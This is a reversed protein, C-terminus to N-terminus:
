YPTGPCSSACRKNIFGGEKQRDGDSTAKESGALDILNLRSLRVVSSTSRASSRAAAAAALSATSASTSLGLSQSSPLSPSTTSDAILRSEIIQHLLSAATLATTRPLAVPAFALLSPLAVSSRFSPTRGRRTSTSTPRASAGTTRARRSSCSSRRPARSPSQRTRAPGHQDAGTRCRPRCPVSPCPFSAGEELNDVCVKGDREHITPVLKSNPNLLDRLSENYLQRSSTTLM